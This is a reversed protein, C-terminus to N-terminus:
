AAEGRAAAVSAKVQEATPGEGDGRVVFDLSLGLVKALKDLTRIESNGTPSNEVAWSVGPKLGSLRDLDKTSIDALERAAKIRAGPTVM